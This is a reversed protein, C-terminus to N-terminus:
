EETEDKFQEIQWLWGEAHDAYKKLEPYEAEESLAKEKRALREVETWQDQLVSLDIMKQYDILLNEYSLFTKARQAIAEDIAVAQAYWQAAEAYDNDNECYEGAKVYGFALDM